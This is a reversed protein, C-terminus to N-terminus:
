FTEKHSSDPGDACADRFADADHEDVSATESESVAECAPGDAPATGSQGSLTDSEPFDVTAPLSVAPGSSSATATPPNWGAVNAQICADLPNESDAPEGSDDPNDQELHGRSDAPCTL